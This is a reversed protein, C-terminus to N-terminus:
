RDYGKAELVRSIANLSKQKPDNMMQAEMTDFKERLKKASLINPIWFSGAGSYIWDICGILEDKTRGDIRIAREIEKGWTSLNPKKFNPKNDVIKKLLYGAVIKSDTQSPTLVETTVSSNNKTTHNISTTTDTPNIESNNESKNGLKRPNIESNENKESKNGVYHNPNIESMANEGGKILYERGKKTVRICDKKGVKKYDILKIEALVKLHRYVTDNKLALLPLDDAIQQRAVWYYVDEGVVIPTAWTSATTLLDFIHAQNINKIGLDLAKQQNVYLSYKM